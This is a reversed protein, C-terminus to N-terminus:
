KQPRGVLVKLFWEYGGNGDFITRRGPPRPADSMRQFNLAERRANVLSINVETDWSRLPLLDLRTVDNEDAMLSSRTSAWDMPSRVLFSPRAELDTGGVRGADDVPRYGRVKLWSELRSAKAIAEDLRMPRNQWDFSFESLDQREPDVNAILVSDNDGGVDEFRFEHAGDAWIINVPTNTTLVPDFKIPLTAQRQIEGVPTGLSFRISQTAKAGSTAICDPLSAPLTGLVQLAGPCDLWNAPSANVVSSNAIALSASCVLTRRTSSM